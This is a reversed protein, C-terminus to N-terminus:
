NMVGKLSELRYRVAEKEVATNEYEVVFITATDNLPTVKAKHDPSINTLADIIENRMKVVM